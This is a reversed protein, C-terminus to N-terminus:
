EFRGAPPSQPPPTRSGTQASEGTAGAIKAALLDAIAEAAIAHGKENPHQDTPSIWLDVENEAEFASLLSLSPIGNAEPM